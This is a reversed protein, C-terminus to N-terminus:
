ESLGALTACEEVIECLAVVFALNTAEDGGQFDATHLPHLAFGSSSTVEEAALHDFFEV